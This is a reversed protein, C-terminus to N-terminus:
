KGEQVKTIFKAKEAEMQRKALFSPTIREFAGATKNIRDCLRLVEAELEKITKRDAIVQKELALLREEKEGLCFFKRNYKVEKELAAREADVTSKLIYEEQRWHEPWPTESLQRNIGDSVYYKEPMNFPNVREGSMNTKGQNDLKDTM